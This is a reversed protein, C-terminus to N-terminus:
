TAELAPALIWVNDGQGHVRVPLSDGLLLSRGDGLELSLLSADADCMLEPRDLEKLSKFYIKLEVAPEELLIYAKNPALGLLTAARIPRQELPLELDPALLADIALRNAEKTVSSQSRKGRNGAEIVAEQLAEDNNDARQSARGEVLEIAEKHTFIGVIERMPSSFRAYAAAGVGHHEGAEEDFESRNNIILAQRHIAKARGAAPGERPLRDLYEALSEREGRHWLWIEPDLKARAVLAEIARALEAVRRHHPPEHVRFIPQLNPLDGAAEADVLLRAGETNCLLSIQENWRECDNRDSSILTFTTQGKGARVSLERRRYRIVDREAALRMRLEGVERLLLLTETFDQGALEHGDPKDHLEQVGPYSLKARSHIRARRLETRVLEGTADLRMDFVLARRDVKENLSVLDESLPRPLMPVAFGPFYYTSGRRLAEAFLATGPRVYYAADALAYAVRYGEGERALYMAQDLDRSDANDITVFALDRMDVLAPDDLGPAKLIEQVEREVEPGFLPDMKFRAAIAFVEALASGARARPQGQVHAVDDHVRVEVIDGAELAHAVPALAIAQPDKEYLDCVAAGSDASQVRGIFHARSPM